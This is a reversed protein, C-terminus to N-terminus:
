KNNHEKIEGFPQWDIFIHPQLKCTGRCIPCTKLYEGVDPDYEKHFSDILWGGRGNCYNCDEPTGEEKEKRSFLGKPQEIEIIQKLKSM